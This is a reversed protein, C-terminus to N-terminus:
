DRKPHRGGALRYMGGYPVAPKARGETLLELRRGAGGALVVVLIRKLAM